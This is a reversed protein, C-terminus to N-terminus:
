RMWVQGGELMSWPLLIHCTIIGMGCCCCKAQAGKSSARDECRHDGAPGSSGSALRIVGRAVAAAVQLPAAPVVIVAAPVQAAVVVPPGTTPVLPSVIVAITTWMTPLVRPPVLALPFILHATNTKEQSVSSCSDKGPLQFAVFHQPKAFSSLLAQRAMDLTLGM